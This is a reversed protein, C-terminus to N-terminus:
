NSPSQMTLIIFFLFGFLLFYITENSLLNLCPVSLASCIYNRVSTEDNRYLVEEGRSKKWETRVQIILWVLHKMMVHIKIM